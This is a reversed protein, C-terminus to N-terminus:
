STPLDRSVQGPAPAATPSRRRRLLLASMLLLVVGTIFAAAVPGLADDALTGVLAAAALAAAVAWPWPRGRVFFAIGLAILAGLTGYGIPVLWAGGVERPRVSSVAGVFGQEVALLLGLMLALVPTRSVRPAIIIWTIALALLILLSAIRESRDIADLFAYASLILGVGSGLTPLTGPAVALALIALVTALLAAPLLWDDAGDEGLVALALAALPAALVISVGALRRRGDDGGARLSVPRGPATRIVVVALALLLASAGAAISFRSWTSLDRWQQAVFVIGATFVLAGGLYGVVEPLRGQASRTPVAASARVEAYTDSIRGAQEVSLVGDAVLRRLTVSLTVDPVGVAASETLETV